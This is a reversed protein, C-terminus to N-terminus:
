DMAEYIYGIALKDKDVMWWVKVLPKAVKVIETARSLFKIKFVKKYLDEGDVKNSWKFRTWEDFAFM